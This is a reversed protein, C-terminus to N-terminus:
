KPPEWAIPLRRAIWGALVCIKVRQGAREVTATKVLGALAFQRADLALCRMVGNGIDIQVIELLEVIRQAMMHAILRQYMQDAQQM